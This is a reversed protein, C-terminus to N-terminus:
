QKEENMLRSFGSYPVLANMEFSIYGEKVLPLASLIKSAEEKGGCELILVAIHDDIDFYIERVVGKQYLKWVVAAEKKLIADKQAPNIKKLEREIALIKL